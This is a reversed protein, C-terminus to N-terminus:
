PENWTAALRRFLQNASQFLIKELCGDPATDLIARLQEYYFSTFNVVNEVDYIATGIRYDEAMLYAYQHNIEVSKGRLFAIPADSGFLVRDAPFHDFTYKLVEQHNVMATDLWANPCQSLKDLQGVVNRLFYARGIHAFIFTVQPYRQCVEVMQRQNVPDALRGPRPIHVTAALRLSNLLDLQDASFMDLVEVEAEPKGLCQAAYNVYPKCGVLKQQRLRQHLTEVPDEPSLLTMAFVHEQDPQPAIERNAHQHPTGFCNLSVQQEPLLSAIWQRWQSLSFSGGFRHYCNKAPFSFNDPFSDHGFIHVHADFLQRPLRPNLEEQYIESDIHNLKPM